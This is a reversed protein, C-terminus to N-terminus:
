GRSMGCRELAEALEPRNKLAERAQAYTCWQRQRKKKEPWEAEMKEVIAEFFRYSAKPAEDTM